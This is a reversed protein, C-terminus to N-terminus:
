NKLEIRNWDPPEIALLNKIFFDVLKRQGYARGMGHGGGLIFLFDFTRVNKESFM